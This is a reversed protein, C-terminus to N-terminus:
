STVLGCSPLRTSPVGSTTPSTRSKGILNDAFCRTISSSRNSPVMVRHSSASLLTRSM